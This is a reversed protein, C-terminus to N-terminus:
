EEPLVILEEVKCNLAMCLKSITDLRLGQKKGKLIKSIIVESLDAKQALEKIQRMNNRAMMELLKIEAQQM